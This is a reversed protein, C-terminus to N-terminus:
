ESLDLGYKASIDLPPMPGNLPKADKVYWDYWDLVRYVVDIQGPQKRNGHEEGPYQVLRVAPHENMKMRRYLELSQSPHVRTDAAGGYILTATKSQHAWYIPSRELSQQWMEELKKGSHVYLEEYPIDTTSRKSILDSIGVFMCVAKVKETYYTAFWASAFGGYSGGGLGIRNKDAIGQAVLYDIGDAIDDFEVGAADGYGTAAYELGYGTSSRYNPYFAAYGKGALVQGPESYRSVWRNSFNSEPGGHVVMVLPYSQGAQYDVPYILLGEVEVGDRAKYRVVKQEGLKREALWPNLNTLRQVQKGGSWYYAENPIHPSGGVFAWQKSDTSMTPEGFVTGIDKSNLVVTRTTGNGTLKVESYTTEVGEEAKFVVTSKDKWGVWDIHGRFKDPTLNDVEGGAVPMVFAQSVAHDKRELAAAYALYQGDPSFAFNGLKGPNDTLKKLSKDQLTLLHIQKFMYSHDVLNKESIAAAITRGDPSFEFAWVTIHQTLQQPSKDAVAIMYLNQPKLNEEYYIFDYGKKELEKERKSKGTEAIYAIQDGSPHWRFGEVKTESDTLQWAEGGNVSIVWVQTKADEGRRMLFALQSGDPRWQVASVNVKGTIFPRSERTKPSVLYLESYANGSKDKAERPASVTYAIWSGDPSIEANTVAKVRFLDAPSLPENAFAIQAYSIAAALLFFFIVKTFVHSRIDFDVKRM